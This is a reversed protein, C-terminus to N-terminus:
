ITIITVLNRGAARALDTSAFTQFQQYNYRAFYILM